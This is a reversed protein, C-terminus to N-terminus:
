RVASVWTNGDGDGDGNGNDNGNGNGNDDSVEGAPEPRRLNRWQQYHPAQPDLGFRASHM